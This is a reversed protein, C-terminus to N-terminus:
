TAAGINLGLDDGEVLSRMQGNKDMCHVDFASFPVECKGEETGGLEIPLELFRLSIIKQRTRRSGEEMTTTITHVEDLFNPHNAVYDLAADLVFKMSGGDIMLNGRTRGIVKRGEARVLTEGDIKIKVKFEQLGSFIEAGEAVVLSNFSYLFGDRLPFQLIAM